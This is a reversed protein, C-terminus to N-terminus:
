KKGEQIAQHMKARRDQLNKLLENMEKSEQSNSTSEMISEQQKSYVELEKDEVKMMLKCQDFFRQMSILLSEGYFIYQASDFGALSEYHDLAHSANRAFQEAIEAKFQRRIDYFSSVTQVFLINGITNITEINSKFISETTTTYLLTPTHAALLINKEDFEQPHAMVEIQLDNFAKMEDISQSVEAITEKMDYMIMMVMDRKESKLKHREIIASTGFTLIISVTTAALSMMFTKLTSM